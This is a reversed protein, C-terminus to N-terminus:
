CALQERSHRTGTENDEPRVGPPIELCEVAVEAGGETEDFSAVLTMEGSFASNTTRFRVKQVVRRAAVLEEVHVTSRDEREASKGRLERETPPSFLSM